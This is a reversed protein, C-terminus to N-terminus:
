KWQCEADVDDIAGESTYSIGRVAVHVPMRDVEALVALKFDDLIDEIYARASSKLWRNIDEQLQDRTQSRSDPDDCIMDIHSELMNLIAARAVHGVADKQLILLNHAALDQAIETTITM